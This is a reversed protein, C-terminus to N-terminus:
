SIFKYGNKLMEKFNDLLSYYTKFQRSYVIYNSEKFDILSVPKDNEIKCNEMMMEDLEYLMPYMEEIKELLGDLKKHLLSIQIFYFAKSMKKLLNYQKKFRIVHDIEDFLIDMDNEKDAIERANELCKEFRMLNCDCNKIRNKVVEINKEFNKKIVRIVKVEDLERLIQEMILTLSDM